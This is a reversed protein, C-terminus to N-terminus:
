NYEAIGKRKNHVTLHTPKTTDPEQPRSSELLVQLQKHMGAPDQDLICTTIVVM